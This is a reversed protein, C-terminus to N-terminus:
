NVTAARRQQEQEKKARVVFNKVDSLKVGTEEEYFEIAEKLFGIYNFLRPILGISHSGHINAEKRCENADMSDLPPRNTGPLHEMDIQNLREADM